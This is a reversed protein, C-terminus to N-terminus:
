MHIVFPHMATAQKQNATVSVGGQLHETEACCAKQAAAHFVFIPTLVIVSHKFPSNIHATQCRVSNKCTNFLLSGGSTHEVAGVCGTGTGVESQLQM